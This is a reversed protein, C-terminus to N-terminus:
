AGAPGDAVEASVKDCLAASPRYQGSCTHQWFFMAVALCGLGFADPTPSPINVREHQFLPPM